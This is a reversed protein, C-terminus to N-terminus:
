VHPKCSMARHHVVVALPQGSVVQLLFVCDAEMRNLKLKGNIMQLHGALKSRILTWLCTASVRVVLQYVASVKATAM